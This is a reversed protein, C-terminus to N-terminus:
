TKKFKLIQCHNREELEKRIGNEGDNNSNTSEFGENREQNKKIAFKAKERIEIKIKIKDFTINNRLIEFTTATLRPMYRREVAVANTSPWDM